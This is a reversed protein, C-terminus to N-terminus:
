KWGFSAAFSFRLTDDTPIMLFSPRDINFSALSLGFGGHIQLSDSSWQAIAQAAIDKTVGHFTLKGAVILSDSHQIVNTSSFTVNPFSIADIVEMAHSDRNSNGSDFTMVDVSASVRKIQKGAPDMEVHYVADKSMAEITHLPHSLQYVVSSENKIAEFTKLQATSFQPLALMIWLLSFHIKMM